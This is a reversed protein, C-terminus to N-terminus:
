IGTMYELHDLSTMSYAIVFSRRMNTEHTMSVDIRRNCSEALGIEVPGWFLAFGKEVGSALVDSFKEELM